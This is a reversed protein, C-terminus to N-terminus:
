IQACTSGTAPQAKAGYKPQNTLQINMEHLILCQHQYKHLSKRGVEASTDSVQVVPVGGALLNVERGASLGLIGLKNILLLNRM